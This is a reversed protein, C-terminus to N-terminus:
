SFIFAEAESTLVCSQWDYIKRVEPHTTGECYRKVTQRSIGLSRSISRISEGDAYRIWIAFYIDVKIVSCTM